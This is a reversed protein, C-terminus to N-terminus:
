LSANSSRDTEKARHLFYKLTEQDARCRNMTDEIIASDTEGIYALWNLIRQKKSETKTKKPPVPPVPPVAGYNTPQLPEAHNKLPPVPPVPNLQDFLSNLM